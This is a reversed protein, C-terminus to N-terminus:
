SASSSEVKVWYDPGHTQQLLENLQEITTEEAIDLHLHERVRHQLITLAHWESHCAAPVTTGSEIAKILDQTYLLGYGLGNHDANIIEGSRTWEIHIIPTTQDSM